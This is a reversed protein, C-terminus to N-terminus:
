SKNHIVFELSWLLTQVAFWKCVIYNGLETIWMSLHFKHDRHDNSDTIWLDQSHCWRVLLIFLFFAGKESSDERVTIKKFM